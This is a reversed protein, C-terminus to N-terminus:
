EAAGAPAAPLRVIFATGNAPQSEVRINGGHAEVIKKVLSLGLGTGHIQDERARAGRFFPDFIQEQEERSIGPGHDAVRIEVTGPENGAISAASIGIWDGGKLGYKAANSVLNELAHRLAVRDGLVQPLGPAIRKELECQSGELLSKSASVAEDIVSEISLPERGELVRGSEATAFRLIQDVMANLRGSERQILAGYREVQAQDAAMKGRLNYAATHIVALPTRLEHSIGAVFDMQLEALKQAHRTFQILAAATAVILLLLGAAVALNRLRAQAVVAELSGARHRVFIQWRGSDPSGGRGPGPGHGAPWLFQQPEFLGASADASSLISGQRPDSQYIETRASTKAVIEVLYDLNGGTGLYRQAIEPLMTARLYDPDFDVIVWAAERRGFPSPTPPAFVPMEITFEEHAPTLGNEPPPGPMNRGPSLLIEMRAKLDSWEAPWASEALVGRDLDLNLLQLNPKQLIVLAVRRVVQRNRSTAKWQPLRELMDKRPDSSANPPVLGSCAAALEANLGQSLRVLTAQLSGRLRDRAAASVEGFWRYQLIALIGCLALLTGIFLWSLLAGRRHKRIAM